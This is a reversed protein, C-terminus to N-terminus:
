ACQQICFGAIAGALFSISGICALCGAGATPGCTVAGVACVTDILLITFFGIGGNSLCSNFCSIFDEAVQPSATQQATVSNVQLAAQQGTLGDLTVKQGTSTTLTGRAFTGAPTVTANLVETGNRRIVVATNQDRTLTFLGNSTEGITTPNGQFHAAYYSNGAGGTIPIRAITIQDQGSSIAMVEIANEQPTFTGAFERQIRQKFDQYDQSALVAQIFPQADTGQLVKTTLLNQGTQSMSVGEKDKVLFSILPLRSFPVGVAIELPSDECREPSNITGVLM